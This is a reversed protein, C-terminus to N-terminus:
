KRVQFQTTVDFRVRSRASRASTAESTLGVVMRVAGTVYADWGSSWVLTAGVWGDITTPIVQGVAGSLTSTDLNGWVSIYALTDAGRLKLSDVTAYALTTLEGGTPIEHPVDLGSLVLLSVDMESMWRYGASVGEEPLRLHVGGGLGRVMEAQTADLHLSREFEAGVVSLRGDVVARVSELERDEAERDAWLSGYKEVRSRVSDYQLVISYLGRDAHDVFRTVSELRYAAARRSGETSELIDFEIDSRAVTQVRTAVRPDFRLQTTQSSCPAATAVISLGAFLLVIPDSTHTM